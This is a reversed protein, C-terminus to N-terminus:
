VPSDIRRKSKPGPKGWNTNDSERISNAWARGFARAGVNFNQIAEARYEDRNKTPKNPKKMLKLLWELCDKEAKITVRRPTLAQEGEIQTSTLTEERDTAPSEPCLRLVGERSLILSDYVEARSLKDLASNKDYDISLDWWQLTPIEQRRLRRDRQKGTALLSGGLLGNLIDREADETGPSGTYVRGLAAAYLELKRVNPPNGSTEVIVSHLGGDEGLVKHAARYTGASSTGGGCLDVLARDRLYVWALVQLSIWYPADFGSMM